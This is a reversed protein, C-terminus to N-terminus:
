IYQKIKINTKKSKYISNQEYRPEFTANIAKLREELTGKKLMGCGFVLKGDLMYQKSPSGDLVQKEEKSLIIVESNSLLQVLDEKKIEEKNKSLILLDQFIQENPYSHELHVDENNDIAQSARVTIRHYQKYKEINKYAKDNDITYEPYLRTMQKISSKVGINELNEKIWPDNLQFLLTKIVFEQYSTLEM